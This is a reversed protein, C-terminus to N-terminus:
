EASWQTAAAGAGDLDAAEDDDSERDEEEEEGEGEDVLPVFRFDVFSVREGVSGSIVAGRGPGNVGDGDRLPGAAVGDTSLEVMFQLSLVGQRDCRICIKSALGMARAAKQIHEFKYRQRVRGRTGPPPLVNFTESVLPAKNKRQKDRVNSGVGANNPSRSPGPQFDVASDGFPGGAGQLAFLPPSHNSATLVLVTPNTCALETIADYLCTSRMIIKLTLADRQLPISEDIDFASGNSSEYTNLDCTTTVGAESITISLPAGIYSYAIRCTGGTIALAPTNFAHHAHSSTFGGNLNRSASSTADSLGFIQLTELLASLNIQFSPTSTTGDNSADNSNSSSASNSNFAYSSFLTKELFTMGQVAHSEEVSFRLGDTTIQVEAKTSFGICRLLLFLQRASSSIATFIPAHNSEM